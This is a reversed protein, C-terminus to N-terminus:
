IEPAPIFCSVYTGSNGNKPLIVWGGSSVMMELVCIFCNLAMSQSNHSCIILLRKSGNLMVVFYLTCPPVPLLKSCIPLALTHRETHRRFNITCHQSHHSLLVWDLKIRWCSGGERKQGEPGGVDAWYLRCM